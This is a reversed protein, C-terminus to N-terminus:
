VKLDPSMLRKTKQIEQVREKPPLMQLLRSYRNLAAQRLQMESNIQRWIEMCDDIKKSRPAGDKIYALLEKKTSLRIQESLEQETLVRKTAM